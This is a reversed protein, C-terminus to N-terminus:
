ERFNVDFLPLLEFDAEGYVVLPRNNSKKFSLKHYLIVYKGFVKKVYGYLEFRDHLKLILYSKPHVFLPFFRDFNFIELNVIKPTLNTKINQLFVM